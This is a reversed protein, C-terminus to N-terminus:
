LFEDCWDSLCQACDGSQKSNAGITHKLWDSFLEKDKKLVLFQGLVIFAKDYGKSELKKGLVEGIGALDTVPKEGMPEAIFNKHKQSTTSM